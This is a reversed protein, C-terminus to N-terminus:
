VLWVISDVRAIFVVYFDLYFSGREMMEEAEAAEKRERQDEKTESPSTIIIILM